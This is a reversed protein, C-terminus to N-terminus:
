PVTEGGAVQTYQHGPSLLSQGPLPQTLFWVGNHKQLSQEFDVGLLVKCGPWALRPNFEQGAMGWGGGGDSAPCPLALALARSM